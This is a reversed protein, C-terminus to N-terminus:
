FGMLTKNLAEIELCMTEQEQILRQLEAQSIKVLM